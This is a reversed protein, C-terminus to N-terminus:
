SNKIASLINSIIVTIIDKQSINDLERQVENESKNDLASTAEDLILIKSKALVAKAIAVRQKQGDSLKSVKIGVVYDLQDPLKHIFETANSEDCANQILDDINGLSEIYEQRGFILNDRISRNYLHQSIRNFRKFIWCWM